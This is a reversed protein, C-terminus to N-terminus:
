AFMRVIGIAFLGGGVTAAFDAPDPDGLKLFLDWLLEKAAGVVSCAVIGTPVDFWITGAAAIAGGCIVHKLKDNLGNFKELINM